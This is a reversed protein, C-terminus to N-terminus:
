DTFNGLEALLTAETFSDTSSSGDVERCNKLVQCSLNNFEGLVLELSLMRAFHTALARFSMADRRAVDHKSDPTVWLQCLEEM